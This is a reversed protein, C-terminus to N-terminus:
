RGTERDLAQRVLQMHALTWNGIDAFDVNSNTVKQVWQVWHTMGRDDPHQIEKWRKLETNLAHGTIANREGRPATKPADFQEDPNDHDFAARPMDELDQTYLDRLGYTDLVAAVKASKMAMKIANNADGGKQGVVRVGRGEGVIEGNSRSRLYCAFVFTNVPSGMQAWAANDASYDPKLGLLDCVFDAGALYFSPKPLWQEKPFPKYGGKMWVLVNGNDDFKPECGPPYGFHVGEKLQARLWERFNDRRETYEALVQRQEGVPLSMSFHRLDTPRPEIPAASAAALVSQQDVISLEKQAVATGM